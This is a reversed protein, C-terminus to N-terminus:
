KSRRMKLKAYLVFLGYVINLVSFLYFNWKCNETSTIPRGAEMKLKTAANM